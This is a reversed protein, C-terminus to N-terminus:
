EPLSEVVPPHEQGEPVATRTVPRRANAFLSACIVLALVAVAAISKWNSSGASGAAQVSTAASTIPTPQVQAASAAAPTEM